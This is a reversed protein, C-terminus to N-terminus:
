MYLRPGKTVFPLHIVKEDHLDVLYISNSATTAM